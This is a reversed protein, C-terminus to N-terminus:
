EIMEKEMLIGDIGQYYGKRVAIEKFGCKKYLGIAIYNTKDVELTINKMQKESSVLILFELLKSAIKKNRYELMVNINVIEIRDYILNYNLYALIKGYDSYILYKTFPNNELDTKISTIIFNDPFLNEIIKQSNIDTIKLESIM